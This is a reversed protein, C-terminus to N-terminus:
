QYAESFEWTKYEVGKDSCHITAAQTIDPFSWSEPRLEVDRLEIPQGQEDLDATVIDVYVTVEDTM